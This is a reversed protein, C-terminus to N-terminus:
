SVLVCPPFDPRVQDGSPFCSAKTLWPLMQTTETKPPAGRLNVSAGAPPPSGRWAVSRAGLHDGLPRQIRKSLPRRTVLPRSTTEESPSEVFKRVPGCSWAPSARQDGLPSAMTYTVRAFSYKLPRSFRM